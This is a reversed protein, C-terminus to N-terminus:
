LNGVIRLWVVGRSTAVAEWSFFENVRYSLTGELTDPSPTYTGGIQLDPSLRITVFPEVGTADFRTKAGLIIKPGVEFQAGLATHWTLNSPILTVEVFPELSGFARGLHARVDTPPAQTGFNLRAEVRGRYLSSEALVTLTTVEAIQLVPRALIAYDRVPPYAALQSSILAELRARQAQAFVVPLGRLPEAMSAVQPAHGQLLLSPISTSRFRVGIDRIVRSDKASITLTIRAVPDAQLRASGAFGGLTEQVIEVM